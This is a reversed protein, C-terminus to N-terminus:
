HRSAVKLAVREKELRKVPCSVIEQLAEVETEALACKWHTVKVPHQSLMRRTSAAGNADIM